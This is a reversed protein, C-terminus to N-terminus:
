LHKNELARAIRSRNEMIKEENRRCLESFIVDILYLQAMKAPVSGLQLPNENAACQLVLDALKAGPSKPFRTVLIIKAGKERAMHLTDLMDRTAGSYSFFFVVDGTNLGSAGIVQLHSDGVAFFKSEAISLLNAAEMAILMSGGQGMCLVKGASQLLDAAALIDAAQIREMTQRIALMDALFLQRCLEPLSDQAEQESQQYPELSRQATANALALKFANYGKCGLRRSFRSITAEAVGCAGSLESISMFQTEKQHSMVYDAAKKEATTLEYYQNNIREFINEERVSM